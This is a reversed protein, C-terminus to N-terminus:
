MMVDMEGSTAPVERAAELPIFISFVTGSSGPQTRSRIRMTAHHKQLLDRSVWLGLGTGNAGKTTFFPEAIRALTQADMGQGNDAVTVRIGPEGSHVDRAERTRLSLTGGQRLADFANGVLNGFVQRLESGYSWVLSRDEYDRKMEIHETTMRSKFLAAASDLLSSMKEWQPVTSQRHFRLSQTVIQSVRVLEQEADIAYQRM